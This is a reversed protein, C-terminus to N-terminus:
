PFFTPRMLFVAEHEKLNRSIHLYFNFCTVVRELLCTIVIPFYLAFAMSAFKLMNLCIGAYKVIYLVVFLTFVLMMISLLCM